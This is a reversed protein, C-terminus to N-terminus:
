ISKYKGLIDDTLFELEKEVDGGERRNMSEWGGIESLLNESASGEEETSFDREHLHYDCSYAVRCVLIIM